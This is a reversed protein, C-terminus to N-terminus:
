GAVVAELTAGAAADSVIDVDPSAPDTRRPGVFEFGSADTGPRADVSPRAIEGPRVWTLEVRRGEDVRRTHTAGPPRWGLRHARGDAGRM